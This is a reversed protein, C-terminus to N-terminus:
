ESWLSLAYPGDGIGVSVIIQADSEDSFCMSEDPAFFPSVDDTHYQAIEAGEMDAVVAVLSKVNASAVAYLRYCHKAQGHFKYTIPQSSMANQTGTMPPGAVHTKTITACANALADVSKAADGAPHFASHCAGWDTHAHVKAHKSGLDFPPPGKVDTPLTSVLHTPLPAADTGADSPTTEPIKSAPGGCACVLTVFIAACIAFRMSACVIVPRDHYIRHRARERRRHEFDPHAHL